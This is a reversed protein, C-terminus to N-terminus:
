ITAMKSPSKFGNIVRKIYRRVTSEDINVTKAIEVNSLGSCYLRLIECGREHNREKHLPHTRYFEMMRDMWQGLKERYKWDDEDIRDYKEIMTADDCTEYHSNYERRRKHRTRYFSVFTNVFDTIEENQSHEYLAIYTDHLLDEDYIKQKRLVKTISPEHQLYTQAFQQANM